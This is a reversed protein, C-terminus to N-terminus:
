QTEVVFTADERLRDTTLGSEPVLAVVGFKQGVYNGPQDYSELSIADADALGPRQWWTASGAFADSGDNLGLVILNSDDHRLYLGPFNVSQISMADPDALGPVVVFQSDEVPTVSFSVSFSLNQHRLYADASALKFRIADVAQPPPVIGSDGSPAAIEEGLAVPVGFNPTGDANWTFRQARTSRTSGCGDNPASNAHYVIWDETGDPSKFFGNHGPGFVHNADSRQFVPEPDKVWSSAALPDDGTYTLMGLKYDATACYSASYIIFTRGDHQLAVPGENVNLGSKEWPYDSRSIMVRSGSITWPNSM